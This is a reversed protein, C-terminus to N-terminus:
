KRLRSYRVQLARDRDSLNSLWGKGGKEKIMSTVRIPSNAKPRFKRVGGGIARGYLRYHDATVESEDRLYYYSAKRCSHQHLHCGRCLTVLYKKPCDEYAISLFYALHHVELRGSSGCIRCKRGDRIVVEEVLDYWRSAFMM